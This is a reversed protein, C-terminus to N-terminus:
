TKVADTSKNSLKEVHLAHTAQKMLVDERQFVEGGTLKYLQVEKSALRVTVIEEIEEKTFGEDSDVGYMLVTGLELM